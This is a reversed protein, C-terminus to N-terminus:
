AHMDPFAVAVPRRHAIADQIVEMQAEAVDLVAQASLRSEEFYATDEAAKLIILRLHSAIEELERVPRELYPSIM